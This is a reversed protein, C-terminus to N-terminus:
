YVKEFVDALLLTDTKSYLDHYYCVTNMKFKNWVNIAHSYNKEIIYGVKLSSFFNVSDPLKEDSLTKFSDMYEHLYSGKQKVLEFLDGSFNQSFYKFDIDSLNRVLGDLSCNM